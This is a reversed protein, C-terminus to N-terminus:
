KVVTGKLYLIQFGKESNDSVVISKEVLGIDDKSAIYGVEVQAYENKIVPNETFIASTCGCSVGVKDILYYNNSVNKIKFTHTLTDDYKIEGFNYEKGIVEIAALDSKGKQNCGVFFLFIIPLIYLSKM